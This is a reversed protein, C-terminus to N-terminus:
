LSFRLRRLASYYQLQRSNTDWNDEKKTGSFSCKARQVNLCQDDTDLEQTRLQDANTGWDDEETSMSFNCKASGLNVTEENSRGAVLITVLYGDQM